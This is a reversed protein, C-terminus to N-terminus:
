DINSNFFITQCVDIKSFHFKRFTFIVRRSKTIVTDSNVCMHDIVSIRIIRDVTEGSGMAEYVGVM